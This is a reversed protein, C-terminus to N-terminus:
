LGDCLVLYAVQEARVVGGEGAVRLLAHPPARSDLGRKSSPPVRRSPLASIFLNSLLTHVKACGHYDLAVVVRTTTSSM